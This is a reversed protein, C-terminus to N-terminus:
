RRKTKKAAKTATKAKVTFSSQGLPDAYKKASRKGLGPWVYWTYRGPTLTYRRGNFKWSKGLKFRPKDPWASLVKTPRLAAAAQGGGSMRWLQVNYYTAGKVAIWLLTPPDTLVANDIPNFLKGRPTATARVGVSVNGAQDITTVKYEYRTGNKVGRDTVTTGAAEYIARRRISKGRTIRVVSVRKFDADRPNKWSLTVKGDGALLKLNSVERPPTTDPPTPAAPPPAALPPPQPAPPPPATPAAEDNVITGIGTSQGAAANILNSLAVVFTEDAEDLVDGNVPVTVTRSTVGAAFTLTGATPTYDAPASATGDATRYDVSVTRGSGANLGVTFTANATGFNGEAVTVDNIAVVPLPDNDAIAGSAQPDAVTANTPNSLNVLYTEDDEDLVDGNVLVTLTRTTQGPAFSLTGSASQYDAPAIATGNATAYDVTIPLGSARSLTVTFIANGSGSNGESSSADAISLSPPDDDDIITGVGHGDAIEANVPNALNVSYTEDIEDLVDAKVQVSVTRTTVGPDFVLSNGAATYDSGAAATDDATSYGVSVTKGSGPALVVTFTATVTGANGETVTVDDITLAPNGDDDIITGTAHDDAITANTPNSLNLSYIENNENFTDGSVLITVQQTTQGPAFTLTGTRAQYDDPAVATGNATAFGVAVSRGSPASVRVAFNAATTGNNGETVTVDNVSIMPQPDNDTITGTGQARAITANGANALNLTYTEDVEDLLDGQVSVAVTKTTQGPTFALTGSTSQFDAPATATGAATAYDVNIPKGSAASLSITFTATGSGIDGETVMVDNVSVGPGPDDDAITALGVGDAITTNGAASLNVTFTEDPEDLTDGKVGVTVPRTTTGPAFALTAAAGEYDNGVSATGDATAYNVTITKASPASLSATFNANVTGSQGETVLVDDISVTPPADDDTITGLGQPDAIDANVPSALNLFFTEDPEDLTDGKVPVSLQRSTDGPAFVLSNGTTTYDSAATATGDATAYGVSVTQGSAPSLTVRFTANVTGSQGETVTVDDISLVPRGDDDIITGVGQDDALTANAPSSLNVFYTESAEDLLDGKVLVTIQKSTVGPAFTLQGSLASYDGPSVATGNATAFNVTVDRGSAASLTVVFTANVTGSNGEVVPVNDISLTPTADDDTITGRAKGDGLTAGVAGSLTIAFTEDPEDLVDGYVTVGVTKTTEGPNFSLLGSASTYDTGAAASEDSTAYDVTVTRGSAASLTVTFSANVSGANGETVTADGISLTPLPDDDSVTALGSADGIAANTANALTVTFTENAEDLVDGNVKVTLQKGIDGAAFTVTGGAAQYDAPATATGNETAYDVSIARGSPASLSVNFTADVTGADGETVVVDGITLTPQPDDDVITGLALTDGIAANVPNSLDLTFTEDIEDLADGAVDVTVTTTTEGAAFSLSGAAAAYDAPSTATGNATAYDVSVSRASPSSLTATFTASVHGTDGETVTADGLAITPVPDDDTITGVASGDSITANTPTSLTVTFTEDDEDLTDSHVPVTVQKTTEGAPIVLEGSAAAYDAPARATADATAYQVTVARGSAPTLLVRFSATVTGTNGETVTVDDIAVHPLPDDDTITGLGQADGLSANTPANLNLFFTEDDEDLADGVISVTITKSTEGPAFTLQGSRATYDGPAAATGDATAYDVTVTGGSPTNLTVDFSASTTGSDGEGVAADNVSLTPPADDDGITGIGQSDVITASVANSLDVDFTEDAEDLTDGNVSITVTKTTQGPDFTLTGSAGAYDAPSTATGDTTAYNVTVTDSSEANLAVTFTAVVTGSDGETVAVDDISLTSSPDAASASVLSGTAVALVLCLLFRRLM